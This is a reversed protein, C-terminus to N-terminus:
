GNSSKSKFIEKMSLSAISSWNRDYILFFTSPLKSRSLALLACGERQVMVFIEGKKPAEGDSLERRVLLRDNHGHYNRLKLFNCAKLECNQQLSRLPPVLVALFLRAM